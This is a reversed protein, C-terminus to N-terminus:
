LFASLAQLLFGLLMSGVLIIVIIRAMLKQKKDNM